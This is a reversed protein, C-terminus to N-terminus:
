PLMDDVLFSLDARALPQVYEGRGFPQVTAYRWGSAGGVPNEPQRYVEVRQEPINVIWYEAIGAKAYMRLKRGSDKLYTTDSVEIVLFPLPLKEEPTGERVDLIHFDPDPAAYRSLRLTGQIVVWAEAPAFAGLLLRTIKSIALMHPHAQSPVEIVEGDILEVRRDDFLGMEAMRFYDDVTWRVRKLPKLAATSM